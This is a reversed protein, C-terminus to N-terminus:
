PPPPSLSSKEKTVPPKEHAKRYQSGPATSRAPPPVALRRYQSGPATSRAPPAEARQEAEEEASRPAALTHLSWKKKHADRRKQESGGGGEEVSRPAEALLGGRRRRKAASSTSSNGGARERVQKNPPEIKGLRKRTVSDWVLIQRDDSATYLLCVHNVVGHMHCTGPTQASPCIQNVWGSHEWMAGSFKINHINHALV